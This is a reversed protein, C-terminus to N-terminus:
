TATAASPGSAILSAFSNRGSTRTSSTISGPKSPTSSSPGFQQHTVQDQVQVGTFDGTCTILELERGGLELQQTLEHLVELAHCCLASGPGHTSSHSRRCALM